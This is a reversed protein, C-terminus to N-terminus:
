IASNIYQRAKEKDTTITKGTSKIIGEERLEKLVRFLTRRSCGVMAALSEPLKKVSSEMILVEHGLKLYYEAAEAGGGSAGLGLILVLM